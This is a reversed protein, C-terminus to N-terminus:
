YWNIITDNNQAVEMMYYSVHLIIQSQIYETGLNWSVTQTLLHTTITFSSREDGHDVPTLNQGPLWNQGPQPPIQASAPSQLWILGQIQVVDHM